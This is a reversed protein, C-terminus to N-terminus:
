GSLVGLLRRIISKIETDHVWVQLAMVTIAITNVVTLAFMVGIM